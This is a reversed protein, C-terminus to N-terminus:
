SNSDPTRTKEDTMQKLYALVERWRKLQDVLEFELADAVREYDAETQAAVLEEVIQKLDSILEELSGEGAILAQEDLDLTTRVATVLEMMTTIGGIAHTYLRYGEETEGDRFLSIIEDVGPILRDMYSDFRELIESAIESTSRSKIEVDQVPDYPILAGDPLTLEAHKEGGVSVETILRGEQLHEREVQAVLDLLSTPQDSFTIKKGDLTIKGM